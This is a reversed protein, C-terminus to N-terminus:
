YRSCRGTCIQLLHFKFVPYPSAQLDRIGEPSLGQTPWDHPFTEEYADARATRRTFIPVPSAIFWLKVSLQPFDMRDASATSDDQTLTSPKGHQVFSCRADDSQSLIATHCSEKPSHKGALWDLETTSEAMCYLTRLFTHWRKIVIYPRQRENRLTSCLAREICCITSFM